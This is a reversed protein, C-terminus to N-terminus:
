ITGRERIDKCIIKFFAPQSTVGKEKLSKLIASLIVGVHYEQVKLGWRGSCGRTDSNETHCPM